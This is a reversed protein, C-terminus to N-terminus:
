DKPVQIGEPLLLSHPLLNSVTLTKPPESALNPAYGNTANTPKNFLFMTTYAQPPDMMLELYTSVAAWQWVASWGITHTIKNWLMRYAYGLSSFM